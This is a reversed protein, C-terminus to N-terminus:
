TEKSVKNRKKYSIKIPGIHLVRKNGNKERYFYKKSTTFVLSDFNYDLPIQRRIIKIDKNIKILPKNPYCKLVYNLESLIRENYYYKESAYFIYDGKCFKICDENQGIVYFRPRNTLYQLQKKTKKNTSIIIEYYPGALDMINDVLAKNYESLKLVLSIVPKIDKKRKTFGQERYIDLVSQKNEILVSKVLQRYKQLIDPYKKAINEVYDGDNLDMLWETNNQKSFVYKINDDRVVWSDSRDPSQPFTFFSGKERFVPKKIYKDDNFMYGLQSVGIGPFKKGLALEILTAPIDIASVLKNCNKSSIDKGIVSWFCVSSIEEHRQGHILESEKYNEDLLVGHDSSIIILDDEGINYENILKKFNEALIKINKSYDESSWVLGLACNLEHLLEVHHYVFKNSTDNNVKEIFKKRRACNCFDTKNLIEGIRFGSSEWLDFGSMPATREGDADCYRYTNYGAEKFFDTITFIEPDFKRLSDLTWGTAGNITAYLGSFFVHMSTHTGANASYVQSFCTGKSILEDIFNSEKETAGCCNLYKPSLGDLLFWYINRYKM